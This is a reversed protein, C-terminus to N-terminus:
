VEPSVREPFGLTSIVPNLWGSRRDKPVAEFYREVTLKAAEKDAEMGQQLLTGELTDDFMNKKLLEQYGEEKKRTILKKSFRLKNPSHLPRLKKKRGGGEIMGRPPNPGVDVLIVSRQIRKCSVCPFLM